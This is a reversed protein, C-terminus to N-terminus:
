LCNSRAKAVRLFFNLVYIVHTQQVINAFDTNGEFNDVFGGAQGVFFVAGYFRVGYDACVNQLRYGFERIQGHAGTRM